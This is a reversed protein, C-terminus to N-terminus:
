DATADAGPAAADIPTAPAGCTGVLQEYQATVWGLAAEPDQEAIQTTLRAFVASARSDEVM